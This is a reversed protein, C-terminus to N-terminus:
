DLSAMVSLSVPTRATLLSYASRFIGQLMQTSTVVHTVNVM